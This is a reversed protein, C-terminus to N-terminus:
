FGDTVLPTRRPEAATVVRPSLSSSIRSIPRKMARAAFSKSFLLSSIRLPTLAIQLFYGKYSYFDYLLFPQVAPLARFSLRKKENKFQKKGKDTKQTRQLVSDSSKQPLRLTYHLKTSPKRDRRVFQVIKTSFKKFTELLIVFLM